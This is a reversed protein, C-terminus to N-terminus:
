QEGDKRNRTWNINRKILRAPNGGIMSNEIVDSNISRCVVSGAAIICNDPITVGKNIISSYGIWVHDGIEIDRSFNNRKGNIEIIGHGDGTAIYINRSIMCDRGFIVKTGEIASCSVGGTTTSGEKLWIQNENEETSFITDNVSCCEDIKILNNNGSINFVVNRLRTGNGLELVNGTGDSRVRVHDLLIDEGSKKVVM